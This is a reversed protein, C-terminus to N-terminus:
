TGYVPPNNPDFLGPKPSFIVVSHFFYWATSSEDLHKPDLLYLDFAQKNSLPKGDPKTYSSKRYLSAVIIIKDHRQEIKLSPYIESPAVNTKYRVPSGKNDTYYLGPFMGVTDNRMYLRWRCSATGDDNAQVYYIMIQGTHGFHYINSSGQYFRTDEPYVSLWALFNIRGIDRLTVMKDKRKQSINQIMNAMQQAVFETQSYYRKIKILDHIYFLLIIMVPMCIAFEILIAGRSLEEEDRPNLFQALKKIFYKLKQFINFPYCILETQNKLHKGGGTM